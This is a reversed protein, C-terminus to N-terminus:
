LVVKFRGKNSVVYISFLNLNNKWAMKIGDMHVIIILAHLNINTIYLSYSVYFLLYFGYFFNYSFDKATDM